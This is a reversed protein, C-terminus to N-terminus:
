IRNADRPTDGSPSTSSLIVFERQICFFSVQLRNTLIINPYMASVDLHYIVPREERVPRDRLDTLKALIEARAEQLGEVDDMSM